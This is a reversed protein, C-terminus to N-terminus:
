DYFPAPEDVKVEEKEPKKRKKQKALM